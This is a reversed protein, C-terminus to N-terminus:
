VGSHERVLRIRGNITRLSIESGGVGLKARFAGANTPTTASSVPLESSFDGNMNQVKLNARADPPLSLVVSGNVTEIDMPASTVQRLQLRLDGNTTKANFHGASNSVEVDGNVSRLDGAGDVGRVSVSGNVTKVAGLLVHYPVHVHYEVVVGTNQGGPYRTHVAVQGPLSEVDIQVQDVDGSGNQSRKVASVEVEDRDWGDVQVSGNINELQFNGGENLPYVKEFLDNNTAFSASCLWLAAATAMVARAAFKGSWRAQRETQTLQILRTTKM